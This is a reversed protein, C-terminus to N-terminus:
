LMSGLINLAFYKIAGELEQRRGGLVMLGFSAVLILEFWVYFNFVDATVFFGGMGAIMLQLLPLFRELKERGELAAVSFMAGPGGVIAALLLMVASLRDAAWSIGFPAPWEGLQSVIIGHEMVLALIWVAGALNAVAGVLSVATQALRREGAFLVAIATLLPIVVPLTLATSVLADSGSM